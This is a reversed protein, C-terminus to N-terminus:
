DAPPADDTPAQTAPSAAEGTLTLALLAGVFLPALLMGGRSWVAFLNLLPLVPSEPLPVKSSNWIGSALALSEMGVLVLAGGALLGFMRVGRRRSLSVVVACYMPITWNLLGQHVPTWDVDAIVVGIEDDRVEYSVPRGTATAVIAGALRTTTIGLLVDARTLQFLGWVLLYMSLFGASLWFVRTM